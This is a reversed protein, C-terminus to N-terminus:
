SSVGLKNLREYDYISMYITSYYEINPDNKNFDEGKLSFDLQGPSYVAIKKNYEGQDSTINVTWYCYSCVAISGKVSPSIIKGTRKNRFTEIPIKPYNSFNAGPNLNCDIRKYAMMTEEDRFPLIFEEGPAIFKKQFYLSSDMHCSKINFSLNTVPRNGFNLIRIPINDGEIYQSIDVFFDSRLLGEKISPLNVFAAYALLVTALTYITLLILEYIKSKKM